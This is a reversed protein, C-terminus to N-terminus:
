YFFVILFCVLIVSHNSIPSNSRYQSKFFYFFRSLQSKVNINRKKYLSKHDSSKLNLPSNGELPFGGLFEICNGMFIYKTYSNRWGRLVFKPPIGGWYLLVGWVFINSNKQSFNHLIQTIIELPLIGRPRWSKYTIDYVVIKHFNFTQFQHFIKLCM